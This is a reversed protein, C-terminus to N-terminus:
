TNDILKYDKCRRNVSSRNVGLFTAIKNQNKFKNWLMTMIKPDRLAHKGLRAADILDPDALHYTPDLQVDQHVNKKKSKNILTKQIIMKFEHLSVVGKSVMKERERKTFELLNGFAENGIAQKSFEDLLQILEQQPFTLLSPMSLVTKKLEDFLIPSFKEEQVLTALSQNTSVIIRVDSSVTKDSKFVRYFGYRIFEALYNQTELDLLHINKIFLTGNGNLKELLPQTYQMSFIPNIGFIKIAVDPTTQPSKIDICHLTERLSIHHIIEVTPMLDEGPIELLLAKKSLAIKLLDIKFNLFTESNSPILQNILQGSKTTELYLLYDWDSPNKLLDLEKKIIDAIEPYYILIIVNNKDLNPIGLIIINENQANKSIASQPEHYKEVEQAIHVITKNLPHGKHTNIDITILEHASKNGLIFQRNKYFLIGIKRTHSNRLFSRISEKYQNIEQHKIFLEEKLQKQQEILSTLNRNRLLRIINGAYNSFLLMEDREINTYFEGPRSHREIIIYADITNQTYIPIFIDANIKELFNILQKTTNTEQYFNTFALEDAILIKTNQLYANIEADHINGMIFNEVFSETISLEVPAYENNKLQNVTLTRITLSTRNFPINFTEKFFSQTVHVLENTNTMHSLKELFDKFTDIFTFKDIAQVHEQFNLFRLRIMKRLSFYFAYTLLIVSFNKLVFVIVLSEPAILTPIIDLVVYPI